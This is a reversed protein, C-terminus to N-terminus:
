LGDRVIRGEVMPDIGVTRAYEILVRYQTDLREVVSSEALTPFEVDTHLLSESVALRYLLDPEIPEGAVTTAALRDDDSEYALRARSM